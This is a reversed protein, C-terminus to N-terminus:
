YANNVVRVNNALYINNSEAAVRLASIFAEQDSPALGAMPIVQNRKLQDILHVEEHRAEITRYKKLPLVRLSRQLVVVADNQIQIGFSRRFTIAYAVSEVSRAILVTAPLWAMELMLLMSAGFALSFVSEMVSYIIVWRRGNPSLPARFTAQSSKNVAYSSAGAWRSVIYLAFIIALVVGFANFVLPKNPIDRAAYVSMEIDFRIACVLIFCPITFASLLLNIRRAM